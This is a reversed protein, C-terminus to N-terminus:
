KEKEKSLLMKLIISLLLTDNPMSTNQVNSPGFRKIFYYDEEFITLNKLYFSIVGVLLFRPM